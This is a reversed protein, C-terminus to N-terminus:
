VCQSLNMTGTIEQGTVATVAELHRLLCPPLLHLSRLHNAQEPNDTVYILTGHARFCSIYGFIM